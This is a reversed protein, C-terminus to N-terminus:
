VLVLSIGSFSAFTAEQHARRKVPCAAPQVLCQPLGSHPHVENYDEFWAPLLAFPRPMRCSRSALMATQLDQRRGSRYLRIPTFCPQV